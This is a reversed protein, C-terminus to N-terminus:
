ILNKLWEMKVTRYGLSKDVLTDRFNMKNQDLDSDTILRSILSHDFDLAVFAEMHLITVM